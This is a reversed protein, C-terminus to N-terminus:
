KLIYFYKDAFVSWHQEYAWYVVAFILASIAIVAIKRSWVTIFEMYRRGTIHGLAYFGGFYLANNFMFPSPFNLLRNSFLFSCIILIAIIWKPLMEVFYYMLQIVFLCLLFWLSVNVPLYDHEPAISFVEFICSWPLGELTRNNWAYAILYIVYAVLFFFVFPVILTNVKRVM